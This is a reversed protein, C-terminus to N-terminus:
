EGRGRPPATRIVWVGNKKQMLVRLTDRNLTDSGHYSLTTGYWQGEDFLQGNSMTYDTAIKPYAETLVTKIVPLEYTLKQELQQKTPKPAPTSKPVASAAPPPTNQQPATLAGYTFSAIALVLAGTIGTLWRRRRPDTGAVLTRGLHGCWEVLSAPKSSRHRMRRFTWHTGAAADDFKAQLM